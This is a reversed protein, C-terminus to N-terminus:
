AVTVAFLHRKAQLKPSKSQWCAAHSQHQDMELGNGQREPCSVLVMFFWGMGMGM